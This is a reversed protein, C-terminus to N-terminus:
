NGVAPTKVLWADNSVWYTTTSQNDETKIVPMIETQRCDTFDPECKYEIFASQTTRWYVGNGVCTYEGKIPMSSQGGGYLRHYSTLYADPAISPNNCIEPGASDSPTQPVNKTLAGQPGSCRYMTARDGSELSLMVFQDPNKEVIKQSDLDGDEQNVTLIDGEIRWTGIATADGNLGVM